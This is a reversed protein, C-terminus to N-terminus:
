NSSLYQKIDEMTLFPILFRFSKELQIKWKGWLKGGPSVPYVGGTQATDTGDGDFFVVHPNRTTHGATRHAVVRCLSIGSTILRDRLLDAFSGDTGLQPDEENHGNDATSCCYLPLVVHRKCLPALKSVREPIDKKSLGFQVGSVYGHCFMAVCSLSHEPINDLAKYFLAKRKEPKNNVCDIPVFHVTHYNLVDGLFARFASAEPIFAGTADQKNKVNVSSFFIIASGHSPNALIILDDYTM